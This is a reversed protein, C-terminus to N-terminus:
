MELGDEKFYFEDPVIKKMDWTFLGMELSGLRM